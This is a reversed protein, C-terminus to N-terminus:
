PPCGTGGPDILSHPSPPHPPEARVQLEQRATQRSRVVGLQILCGVLSTPASTSCTWTSKNATLVEISRHTGAASQSGSTWLLCTGGERRSLPRALLIYWSLVLEVLQRPRRSSSRRLSPCRWPRPLQPVDPALKKLGSVCLLAVGSDEACGCLAARLWCRRSVRVAPRCRRVFEFLLPLRALHRCSSARARCALLCSRACRAPCPCAGYWRACALLLLIVTPTPM